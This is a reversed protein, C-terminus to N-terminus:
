SNHSITLTFTSGKGPESELTLSGGLLEAYAKSIALGLGAGDSTYSETHEGQRFREFILDHYERPIGPGTDVVKFVHNQGIFEYQISVMGADTFKIANKILNSLIQTLKTEDTSFVRETPRPCGTLILDLNKRDAEPFFEGHLHLLIPAIDTQKTHVPVQGAEIRSIDIIDNIINLMRLGSERIIDLFRDRDRDFTRPDRLLETFGLIGNMPTRIEHSINALFATKLRDNEEAREKAVKLDTYLKGFIAALRGIEDRNKALDTVPKGETASRILLRLPRLSRGVLMFILLGCTLITVTFIIITSATDKYALNRIDATPQQAVVIWGTSNVPSYFATWPEGKYTYECLASEGSRGQRVPLFESYDDIQFNEFDPSDEPHAILWGKESTMYVYGRQGIRAQNIIVSSSKFANLIMIGCLFSSVEGQENFLPITFGSVLYGMENRRPEMFCTSGTEAGKLQLAREEPSVPTGELEPYQPNVTYQGDTDALYYYNFYQTVANITRLVETQREYDGSAIDPLMSVSELENATRKFVSDVGRALGFSVGELESHAGVMRKESLSPYFILMEFLLFGAFVAAMLLLIKIRLSNTHIKM